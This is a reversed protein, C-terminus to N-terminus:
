PKYVPRPIRRLYIIRGSCSTHPGEGRPLIEKAPSTYMPATDAAPLNNGRRLEYSTNVALYHTTSIASNTAHIYAMRNRRRHVSANKSHQLQIRYIAMISDGSIQKFSASIYPSPWYKGPWSIQRWCISVQSCSAFTYVSISYKSFWPMRQSTAGGWVCPRPNDFM